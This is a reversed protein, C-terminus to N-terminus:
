FGDLSCNHFMLFAILLLKRYLLQFLLVLGTGERGCLLLRPRHVLSAGHRMALLRALHEPSDEEDDDLVSAQADERTKVPFIESLLNVIAELHGELCPAVVSSLPRACTVAGRHSAPTIAGVAELFHRREVEVSDVDIVFQDDSRFTV